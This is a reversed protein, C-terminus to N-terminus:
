KLVSNQLLSELVSECGGGNEEKKKLASPNNKTNTLIAPNIARSLLIMLETVFFLGSCDWSERRLRSSHNQSLKCFGCRLVCPLETQKGMAETLNGSATTISQQPSAVM